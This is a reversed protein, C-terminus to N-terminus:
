RRVRTGTDAVALNVEYTSGGPVEFYPTAGLNSFIEYSNGENVATNGSLTFTLGSDTDTFENNAIAFYKKGNFAAVDSPRGFSITETGFSFSNPSLPGTGGLYTKAPGAAISVGDSRVTYIHAPTTFQPPTGTMPYYTVGDFAALENVTYTAGDTFTSGKFPASGSLTFTTPTTVTGDLGIDFTPTTDAFSRFTLMPYTVGDGVVNSGNIAYDINAITVTTASPATTVTYSQEVTSISYTYGSTTLPYASGNGVIQNNLTDLQYVYNEVIVVNGQVIDFQGSVTAGLLSNQKLVLTYPVGDIVFQTNSDTMPYTIGNGIVTNPTVNTDIVYIQGNM